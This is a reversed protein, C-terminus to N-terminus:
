ERFLEAVEGVDIEGKKIGIGHLSGGGDGEWRPIIHVHLHPVSQGAVEGHNLGITFGDPNLVDKIRATTAKVAPMLLALQEDSYDFVTEGEEKLIVVTHGKSLPFIDLFALAHDNEYVTYSPIEKNIIKTFISSM